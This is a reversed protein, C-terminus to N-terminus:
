RLAADLDELAEDLDDHIEFLSTFGSVELVTMVGASPGALHVAGGASRARKVAMLLVRLGASAIYTLGTLDILVPTSGASLVRPLLRDQVDLATGSDVRGTLSLVVAGDAPRDILEMSTTM